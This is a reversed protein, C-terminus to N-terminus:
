GWSRCEPCATPVPTDERRGGGRHYKGEVKITHYIARDLRQATPVPTDERRGGGRHYKGEVKITHYIARDLRQKTQSTSSYVDCAISM